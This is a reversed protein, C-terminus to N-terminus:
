EQESFTQLSMDRPCREPLVGVHGRILCKGDTVNHEVDHFCITCKRTTFVTSFNSIAEEM